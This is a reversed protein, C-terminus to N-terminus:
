VTVPEGPRASKDGNPIVVPSSCPFLDRRHAGLVNRFTCTYMHESVRMGAGGLQMADILIAGAPVACSM